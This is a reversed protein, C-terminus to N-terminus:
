WSINFFIHVFNLIVSTYINVYIKNLIVACTDLSRSKSNISNVTSTSTIIILWVTAEFELIISLNMFEQQFVLLCKNLEGM